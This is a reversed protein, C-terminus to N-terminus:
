LMRNINEEVSVSYEEIQEAKTPTAITSETIGRESKEFSPLTKNSPPELQRDM